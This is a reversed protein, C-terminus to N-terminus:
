ESWSGKTMDMMKNPDAGHDLYMARRREDAEIRLRQAEKEGDIKAKIISMMVGILFIIIGFAGFLALYYLYRDFTDAGVYIGVGIPVVTMLAGWAMTLKSPSLKELIQAIKGADDTDLPM